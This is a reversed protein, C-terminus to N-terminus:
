KTRRQTVRRKGCVSHHISYYNINVKFQHKSDITPERHWNQAQQCGGNALTESFQCGIVVM